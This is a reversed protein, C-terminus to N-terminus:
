KGEAKLEKRVAVKIKARAQKNTVDLRAYGKQGRVRQFVDKM